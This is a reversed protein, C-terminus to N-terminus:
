FVYTLWKRNLQNRSVFVQWTTNIRCGIKMERFLAHGFFPMGVDESSTKPSWSPFLFTVLLWAQRSLPLPIRRPWVEKLTPIKMKYKKPRLVCFQSKRPPGSFFQVIKKEKREKHKGPDTNKRSLGAFLLLFYCGYTVLKLMHNNVVTIQRMFCYYRMKATNGNISLDLKRNQNPIFYTIIFM